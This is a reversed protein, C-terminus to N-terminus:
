QSQEPEDSKILAPDFPTGREPCRAEVSGILLYDCRGCRRKPTRKTGRWVAAGGLFGIGILAGIHAAGTWSPATDHNVAFVRLSFGVVYGGMLLSLVAGKLVALVRPNM